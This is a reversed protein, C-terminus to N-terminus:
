AKGSTYVKELLKGFRGDPRLADFAPDTRLFLVWHSRAEVAKELWTLANETEGLGLYALGVLYPPVYETKKHNFLRELLAQAQAQRKCKGYGFSLLGLMVPSEGSHDRALELHEIAENGQGTQLYARGLCAHAVPFAPNWEVAKHGQEIAKDYERNYYYADSLL